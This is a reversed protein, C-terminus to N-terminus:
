QFVLIYLFHTCHQQHYNLGRNNNQHMMVFSYCYITCNHCSTSYLSAIQLFNLNFRIMRSILTQHYIQIELKNGIIFELLV